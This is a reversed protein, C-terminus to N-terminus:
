LSADVSNENAHRKIFEVAKKAHGELDSQSEFVDQIKGDKDILYTVRGPLILFSKQVKFAKKAKDDPDSLLQYPLNQEEAFKKHMEPSDSSVGFVVAGAESFVTHSDRFYCVEKTCGYTRDQPYFFVVTLKKGISDDLNIDEGHQNKLILGRPAPQNVMSHPM